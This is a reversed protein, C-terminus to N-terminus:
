FGRGPTGLHALLALSSAPVLGLRGLMATSAPEVGSPADHLSRQRCQSWPQAAQQQLRTTSSTTLHQCARATGAWLKKFGPQAAVVKNTCTYPALLPLSRCCTLTWCPHCAALLRATESPMTCAAPSVALYAALMFPLPAYMDKCLPRAEELQWLQHWSGPAQLPARSRTLSVKPLSPSVREDLGATGAAAECSAGDCSSTSSALLTTPMDASPAPRQETGTEPTFSPPTFGRNLLSTPCTTCSYLFCAFCLDQQQAGIQTWQQTCSCAPCAQAWM